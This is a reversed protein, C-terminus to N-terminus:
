VAGRHGVDCVPGYGSAVMHQTADSGLRRRSVPSRETIVYLQVWM